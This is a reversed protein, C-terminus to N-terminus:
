SSRAQLDKLILLRYPHEPDRFILEAGLAAGSACSCPYAHSFLGDEPSKQKQARDFNM